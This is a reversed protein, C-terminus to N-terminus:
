EGRRVTRAVTSQDQLIKGWNLRKWTESNENAEVFHKMALVAQEAWRKAPVQGVGTALPTMLISEIRRDDTRADDPLQSVFEDHEENHKVVACLLSWICEYIVERDWVVNQPIRMTPCLLMYRTHFPNSEVKWERDTLPVITCTGPPAFGRWHKYLVDQARHTIWNYDNKPGYARALADDFAGDLRAYSNAPSVVADIRLDPNEQILYSLSSRHGTITTHDHINPFLEEAATNFALADETHMCLLHINPLKYPTTASSQTDAM